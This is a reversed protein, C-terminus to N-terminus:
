KEKRTIIKDKLAGFFSEKYTNSLSIPVIRSSKSVLIHEKDIATIKDVAVIFSKHVRIFRDKPLQEELDKMNLLTTVRYEDTHISVYNKEGEVYCIDALRVKQLMGETRVFLFEERNGAAATAPPEGVRAVSRAVAKQTAKLFRDFTIPKLLYDVVGYEYGQLAYDQHATTLIFQHQQGVVRLFEIGNLDPMHIDLFILDVDRGAKSQLFHLGEISNTTAHVLHLSPTKQVHIRLLDIAHQEDDFIICSLPLM